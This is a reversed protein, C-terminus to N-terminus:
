QIDRSLTRSHIDPSLARSALPVDMMKRRLAELRGQVSYDIMRNGAIVRAGGVLEPVIRNVLMLQKGYHVALSTALHNMAAADLPRASEVVGEVQGAEALKLKHFAHALGVLVAERNKDFALSIVNSLLPHVKGLAGLVVKRREERDRRPNGLADRLVPSDVLQGLRGVDSLVAQLAGKDKALSWLADAWRQTVPDVIM